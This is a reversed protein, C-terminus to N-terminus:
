AAREIRRGAPFIATMTTGKGPKSDILLEGDHLRILSHTIPLGLGTGQHRRSLTSDVQGFPSLAVKIDGASMGIGSDCVSIALGRSGEDRASIRVTGGEPTFKIANTVLNLLVQRLARPDAKLSPLDKAIDHSLTVQGEDAKVKLLSLCQEILSPLAVDSEHLELKGAELKALDLVDNILELLYTGSTHIDRAYAAYQPKCAGFMENAIIESFGLIANLPTRLEHSMNALFETKARNAFEAAEKARILAEEAMKRASIDTIWSLSAPIGDWIVLAAQADVWVISGDRHILRFEYHPTSEQGKMRADIRGVILGIDDPHIVGNITEQAMDTLESADAYGILRAFGDNMYLVRDNTRVVIGQHSGEVVRRMQKAARRAAIRPDAYLKVEIRGQESRLQVENMFPRKGTSRPFHLVLSATRGAEAILWELTAELFPRDQPAVKQPLSAGPALGYAGAGDGAEIALLTGAGDILAYVAPAADEQMSKGM